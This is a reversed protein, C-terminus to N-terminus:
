EEGVQARGTAVDFEYLAPILMAITMFGYAGLLVLFPGVSINLLLSTLIYFTAFPCAFSAWRIAASDNRTGLAALLGAGGGVNCGLFPAFQGQFSGSFAVMIRMCVAVGVFLFFVTGLSVAAATRSNAYNVGVHIGLTAVFLTMVGWAVLLYFAHELDIARAFLLYIVLSAPALIMEKCNYIIGGLKGFVIERPTLDTVLLLDLARADRESTLSTVAQANILVLSLVALPALPQAATWLSLRDVGHALTVLWGAAFGFLVLYAAHIVLTKRGYAWTRIERWLIPNDWVPRSAETAARTAASKREAAATWSEEDFAPGLRVERTPNWHRVKRIALLNVAITLGGVALLYRTTSDGWAAQEADWSVNAQGAALLAQWPSFTAAWERTTLGLNRATPFEWALAEWTATWAVLALATIALSQFTKERWLAVTSGLSGAAVIALATVGEVRAIQAFSVGGLLAWIMFAPLAALAMSLPQLLSAFLKGLVLESNTMRTLLLLELTRRDKELAVASAAGMAALFVLVALQLASLIAFVAAGFRALDGLNRVTQTGALLQWASAMLTFLALVYLSRTFFYKPRRPASSLERGLM